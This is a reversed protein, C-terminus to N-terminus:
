GRKNHGSGFRLERYTASDKQFANARDPNNVAGERAAWANKSITPLRYPINDVVTADDAEVSKTLRGM